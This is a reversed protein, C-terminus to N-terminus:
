EISCKGHGLLRESWRVRWIIRCAANAVTALRLKIRVRGAGARVFEPAYSHESLEGNINTVKTEGAVRRMTGLWEPIVLDGLDGTGHRNESVRYFVPPCHRMRIQVPLARM